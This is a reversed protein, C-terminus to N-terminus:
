VHARGIQVWVKVMGDFTLKKELSEPYIAVDVPRVTLLKALGFTECHVLSLPYIAVDVPSVTDFKAVVLMECHFLSEPYRVAARVDNFPNVPEVWVNAVVVEPEINSKVELPLTWVNVIGASMENKLLSAPYTVDVPLPNHVSAPANEYREDLVSSRRRPPVVVDVAFSKKSEDDPLNPM